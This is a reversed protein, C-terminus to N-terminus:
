RAILSAEELHLCGEGGGDDTATLTLDRFHVEARRDISGSSESLRVVDVEGATARFVGFDDSALYVCIGNAGCDPAFTGLDGTWGAGYETYLEVSFYFASEQSHLHFFPDSGGTWGAFIPGWSDSDLRVTPYGDPGPADDDIEVGSDGRGGTGNGNLGGGLGGGDNDSGDPGSGSFPGDALDPCGTSLLCAALLLATRSM